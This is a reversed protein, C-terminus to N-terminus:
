TVVWSVEASHPGQLRSPPQLTREGWLSALPGPGTQTQTPPSLLPLAGPPQLATRPDEARQPGPLAQPIM